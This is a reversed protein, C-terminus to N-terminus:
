WSLDVSITKHLISNPAEEVSSLGDSKGVDASGNWSLSAKIETSGM